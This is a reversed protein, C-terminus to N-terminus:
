PIFKGNTKDKVRVVYQKLLQLLQVSTDDEDELRILSIIAEKEIVAAAVRPFLVPIVMEKNGKLFTLLGFEDMGEMLDKIEAERCTIINHLM